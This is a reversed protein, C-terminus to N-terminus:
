RQIAGGFVKAADQSTFAHKEGTPQGRYCTARFTPVSENRAKAKAGNRPSKYDVADKSKGSEDMEVNEGDKVLTDNLEEKLLTKSDIDDESADDKKVVVTDDVLDDKLQGKSQKRENGVGGECALEKGEEKEEEENRKKKRKKASKSMGSSSTKERRPNIWSVNGSWEEEPEEEFFKVMEAESRDPIEYDVFREPFMRRWVNFAKTWEIKAPLRRLMHLCSVVDDDPMELRMVDDVLPQPPHPHM